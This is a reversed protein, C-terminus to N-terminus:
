AVTAIILAIAVLTSCIVIVHSLRESDFDIKLKMAVEKNSPEYGYKHTVVTRSGIKQGSPPRPLSFSMM